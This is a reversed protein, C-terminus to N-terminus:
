SQSHAVIERAFDWETVLERIECYRDWELGHQAIPAEFLKRVIMILLEIERRSREDQDGRRLVNLNEYVLDFLSKRVFIMDNGVENLLLLVNEYGVLRTAFKMEFRVYDSLSRLLELRKESANFWCMSSSSSTLMSQATLLFQRLIQPSRGASYQNLQSSNTLADYFLDAHNCKHVAESTCEKVIHNIANLATIQERDDSIRYIMTLLIPSFINVLDFTFNPFHYSKVKSLVFDCIRERISSRTRTDKLLQNMTCFLEAMSKPAEMDVNLEDWFKEDDKNMEM